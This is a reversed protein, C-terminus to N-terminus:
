KNKKVIINRKLLENLLGTVDQEIEETEAKYQSSLESIIDDVSKKGDLIKWIAKGTDNLTFLEDELDGLGSSLPVLILEGEINRAVIDKSPVYIHHTEIKNLM